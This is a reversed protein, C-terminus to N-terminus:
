EIYDDYIMILNKTEPSRKGIVIRSGVLQQLEMLEELTNVEVVPKEDEWQIVPTSNNSVIFHALKNRYGVANYGSACYLTFEM